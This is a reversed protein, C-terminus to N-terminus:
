REIIILYQFDDTEKINSSHRGGWSWYSIVNNNIGLIEAYHMEFLGGHLNYDAPDKNSYGLAIVFNNNYDIRQLDYIAPSKISIVNGINFSKIMDRVSLPDQFGEIKGLDQGKDNTPDYPLLSNMKNLIATQMILDVVHDGYDTKKMFDNYSYNRWFSPLKLDGVSCKGTNYLSTAMEKFLKPDLEALCKEIVAASCTSGNQIIGEPSKM